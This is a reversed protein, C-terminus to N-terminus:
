EVDAIHAAFVEVLQQYLLLTADDPNVERHARPPVPSPYIELSLGKMRTPFVNFRTQFANFKTQFRFFITQVIATCVKKQIKAGLIEHM